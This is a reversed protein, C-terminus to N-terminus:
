QLAVEGRDDQQQDGQGRVELRRPCHLQEARCAGRGADVAAPAAARPVARASFFASGIRDRLGNSETVPGSLM